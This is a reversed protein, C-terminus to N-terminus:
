WPRRIGFPSPQPSPRRASHASSKSRRSAAAAKARHSLASKSATRKPERKLAQIEERVFEGAATSASKGDRLDQQAKKIAKKEPMYIGKLALAL